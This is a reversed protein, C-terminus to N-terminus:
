PATGSQQMAAVHAMTCGTKESSCETNVGNANVRADWDKRFSAQCEPTRGGGSRRGGIAQRGPREADDTVFPRDFETRKM